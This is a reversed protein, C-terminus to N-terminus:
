RGGATHAAEKHLTPAIKQKLLSLGSSALVMQACKEQVKQENEHALKIIDRRLSLITDKM